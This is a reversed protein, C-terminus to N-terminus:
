AHRNLTAELTDMAAMSLRQFYVGTPQGQGHVQAHRWSPRVGRVFLVFAGGWCVDVAADNPLSRRLHRRLALAYLVHQLHYSHQVMARGLADSAYHSPTDGLHNSKWDLVYYRGAHEFVLDMFGRLHGNFTQRLVHPAVLPAPMGMSAMTQVLAAVNAHPLHLDFALENLRQQPRVAQLKLTPADAPLLPTQTIDDLMSLLMDAYPASLATSTTAAVTNPPQPHLQLATQVAGPWHRSDSFDVRELVAHVADGATAGRPFNLVDTIPIPTSVLSAADDGHHTTSDQTDNPDLTTVENNPTAEAFDGVDHRTWASFSGLTWSARIPGPGQRAVVKTHHQETDLSAPPRKDAGDDGALVKLKMAGGAAEAVAHWGFSIANAREDFKGKGKVDAWAELDMGQGAVLWNLMSKTLTSNNAKSGSRQAATAVVLVCRHEARTLAVYIKRLQETNAQHQQAKKVRKEDVSDRDDVFDVVTEDGDQYTKPWAAGGYRGGSRWMLPVYTIPYQLGKVHFVTVVQVLDRDTELRLQHEDQKTTAVISLDLWRLLAVPTRHEGAAQTLLELLHLWNTLRREGDPRQLMRQPMHTADAFAHMTAAVGHRAWQHQWQHLQETADDLLTDQVDTKPNAVTALLPTASAGWLETALAARALPTASPDLMAQLLLSLESAQLTQFISSQSREISAVGLAALADRMAAGDRHREIIVAIDGGRLARSTAVGDKVDDIRAEGRAAAQLIRAIDSACAHLAMSQAVHMPLAPPKTDQEEDAPPEDQPNPGEAPLCWTEFPATVGPLTLRATRLGSAEVTPYRLRADGFANKHHAFVANIATVLPATARQNLPLTAQHHAQEGARLYSHVDAGRFNYIAQKPDGVLFVPTGQPDSFDFMRKFINFQLANTDQCEDILAARYQSRLAQAVTAQDLQKHLLALADSYSLIRQVAKADRLTRQSQTLCTQLLLLRHGNAALTAAEFAAALEAALQFFDHPPQVKIRELVYTGNFRKAVGWDVDAFPEDGHLYDDWTSAAQEIKGDGFSIRAYGGTGNKKALSAEIAKDVMAQLAEVIVDRGARWAEQAALFAEHLPPMVADLAPVDTPWVHRALPREDAVRSAAAWTLPSDKHKALMRAVPVPLTPVAVHQRWADAVASLRLAHDDDQLEFAFPLHSAFATDTLARRTFGDITHINAEGFSSLALNVRRALEDQHLGHETQLQALLALLADDVNGAHSTLESAAAGPTPAVRAALLTAAEQLRGRIREQLEAAAAKTFTVVLLSSLPWDRELLMRLVLMCMTWTKGTGASAEILHVGQLPADLHSFPPRPKIATNV